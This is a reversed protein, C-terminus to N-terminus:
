WDLGIDALQRRISRLDWINIVNWQVAVALQSGDPSFALGNVAGGSPVSLSALEQGTDPDILQVLRPTLAIALVRGDHAFALPKLLAFEEPRAIVPGLEWTGTKYLRYETPGGVALWRNDPSFAVGSGVGQFIALQRGNATDWIRTEEGRQTGTAAWRADSSLAAHGIGPHQLWVVENPRAIDVIAAKEKEELVVAVRRGELDAGGYNWNRHDRVLLHRPPGSALGTQGREELPFSFLGAKGYVLLSRGKDSFSVFASDSLPLRAAPTLDRQGWVLVEDNGASVLLRGDPSFAISNPGAHAQHGYLARCERGPALEWRGLATQGVSVPLSDGVSLLGHTM